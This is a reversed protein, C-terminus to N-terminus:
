ARLTKRPIAPLRLLYVLGFVMLINLSFLALRDALIGFRRFLLAIVSWFLAGAIASLYGVLNFLGFVEAIKDSHVLDFALARWISWTSGLAMGTLAGIIWYLDPNAAVTALMLCVIWLIFVVVLCRKHGLYDSIFGSIFSGTIAFLNSFAILRVVQGDNLAFVRTAYISMFLIVANVAAFAFFASKMFDVLGSTGQAGFAASKVTKFIERLSIRVLAPKKSKDGILMCPISFILFFLATPLFVSQLGHKSVIPQCLVIALTAGGYSFMKGVGSILGTKGPPAIDAMLANYFVSATQCGFNALAFFLLAFFINNVGLFATFFISLFTLSVLYPQRRQSIDSMTGLIIGFFAVLLTSIGFSLSYFFAESKKELILWRVFYLSVVNLAFFQNALDYMAWAVIKGIRKIKARNM